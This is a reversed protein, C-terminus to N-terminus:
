YKAHLSNSLLYMQEGQRQEGSLPLFMLSSTPVATPTDLVM